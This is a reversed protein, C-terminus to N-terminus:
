QGRRWVNTIANAISNQMNGWLGIDIVDTARNVFNNVFWMRITRGVEPTYINVGCLNAIYDMFTTNDM